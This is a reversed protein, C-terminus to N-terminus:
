HFVRVSPHLDAKLVNGLLAVARAYDVVLPNYDPQDNRLHCGQKETHQPINIALSISVPDARDLGDVAERM